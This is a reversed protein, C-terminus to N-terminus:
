RAGRLCRLATKRGPRHRSADAMSSDWGCKNVMRLMSKLEAAAEQRSRLTVHSQMIVKGNHLVRAGYKGNGLHTVKTSYGQADTRTSTKRRAM